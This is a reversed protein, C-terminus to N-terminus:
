AFLVLTMQPRKTSQQPHLLNELNSAQQISAAGTSHFRSLRAQTLREIVRTTDLTGINTAPTLIGRQYLRTILNTLVPLEESTQISPTHRLVERVYVDTLDCWPLHLHRLSQVIDDIESTSLVRLVLDPTIARAEDIWRRWIHCVQRMINVDLANLFSTVSRSSATLLSRFMADSCMRQRLM